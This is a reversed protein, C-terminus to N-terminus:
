GRLRIIITLKGSGRGMELIVRANAGGRIRLRMCDAKDVPAAVDKWSSFAIFISSKRSEIFSTMLIYFVLGETLYNEISPYIYTREKIM